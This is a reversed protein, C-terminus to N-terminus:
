LIICILGGTGENIIRELTRQIKLQVDEPMKYLKNQLGDKVLMELSKGFMNSQWFKAPDKEIEELLTKVLEESEREAGVYPTIETQINSKIIHLSPASAKLKIGYKGDKMVKEPSEFIM